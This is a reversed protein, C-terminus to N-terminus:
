KQCKSNKVGCVINVTCLKGWNYNKGDVNVACAETTIVYETKSWDDQRVAQRIWVLADRELWTPKEECTQVQSERWNSLLRQTVTFVGSVVSRHAKNEFADSSFPRLIVDEMPTWLSMCSINNEARHPSAATDQCTAAIFPRNAHKTNFFLTKELASLKNGDM